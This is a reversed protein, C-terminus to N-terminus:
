VSTGIFKLTPLLQQSLVANFADADWGEVWITVDIYGEYIGSDPATETLKLINLNATSDSVGTIDVLSDVDPITVDGTPLFGTTNATYYDFALNGTTTPTAGFNYTGAANNTYGTKPNPYWVKTSSATGDAKGTLAIRAADKAHAPIMKAISDVTFTGTADLQYNKGVLAELASVTGTGNGVTSSVSSGNTENTNFAVTYEASAQFYLRFTYSPTEKYSAQPFGTPVTVAYTDTNKASGFSTGHTLVQRDGNYVPQVGDPNDTEHYPDAFWEEYNSMRAYLSDLTSHVASAPLMQVYTGALGSASKGNQTYDNKAAATSDVVSIYLGEGATVYLDLQGVEPTDSMSFWAYTSTGALAVTAVLVLISVLLKRAMKNKM